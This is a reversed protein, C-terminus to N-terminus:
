DIKLEMLLTTSSSVVGPATRSAAAKLTTLIYGFPVISSTTPSLSVDPYTRIHIAYLLAPYLDPTVRTKPAKFSQLDPM